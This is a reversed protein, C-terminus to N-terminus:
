MSSLATLRAPMGRHEEQMNPTKRPPFDPLPSAAAAALSPTPSSPLSLATQGLQSRRLASLRGLSPSLLPWPHQQLHPLSHARSPKPLYPTLHACCPLQLVLHHAPFSFHSMPSPSCPGYTNSCKRCSIIAPFSPFPCPFAAALCHHHSSM